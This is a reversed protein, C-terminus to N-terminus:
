TQPRSSGDSAIVQARPRVTPTQTCCLTRGGQCVARGRDDCRYGPELGSVGVLEEKGCFLMLNRPPKKGVKQKRAWIVDWVDSWACCRLQLTLVSLSSLKSM